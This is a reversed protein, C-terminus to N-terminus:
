GLWRSRSAGVRAELLLRRASSRSIKTYVYGGEGAHTVTNGNAAARAKALMARVRRARIRVMTCSLLRQWGTLIQEALKDRVRAADSPDAPVLTSSLRNKAVTTALMRLFDSAGPAIRGFLEVALPVFAYNAANLHPTCYSLKQKHAAAAASGATTAANHLHTASLPNVITHDV